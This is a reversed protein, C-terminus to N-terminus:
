KNELMQYNYSQVEVPGILGSPQLESDKNLYTATQFTFRENEPLTKEGILRNRWCNVVEVELTNNGKKLANTINLRYPATWVGGVYVGNVKVKALVMVKGLDLYIQGQPLKSVKFTNTYTATGSFFRIKPDSNKSWDSLTNFTVPTEPGGRGSQFAVTWPTEIKSVVTKAPYNEGVGTKQDTATRFVVFASEYPQLTMPVETTKTMTRYNPLLRIESTLPNWLEPIKGQIRYSGNFTITQDSQNSVFYYDGDAQTRHIFLLPLAPDEAAFDAVVGMDGFIQELSAEPYIRGKGYAISTAFPQDKTQWMEDAMAKVQADAQPYNQLSPSKCPAPGQLVLGAAVLEKLKALLEPRMTNIKPLVLVRYEMGSKLLLKGDKVSASMLVEGNVYDYSYGKPIEPNRIGTMKPADEGLFYAVDAVYRGEQLMYNCRKLYKAFIDMQSFWTNNRNFENGFNANIGPVRDDPQQIYLHLLTSNIGETFFRDGRQKMQGPYQTFDPGGCTFSEAWVKKKGYVHGCSSASRNEIDGLDGFSWFEGAIEDSQSGYQLFEGPYGWHGYNELWTTLGHENSVERLGGVYNYSVEDAILRRVDWLFRDSMEESGVVVGSYVPIFPVPDYGYAKKFDEIMKDTWNQGGTEYSDEVVIKFTKRDEAPIKKLIMGIYNDFHARIHEKSMKDTELGRGEEPAPGDMSGTPLMGTRMIVWKGKPVNWSLSGDAKMNSTIDMVKNAALTEIGTYEPQERWMYADWMPHPTQWMKAFTKEPYREVVPMDSLEVKQIIGAANVVVRFQKGETEPVSIVIPAYPEFGVNIADNSRDIQFKEVSRYNEGDKVFLEASGSCAKMVPYLVLSRVKAAVPSSLNITTAKSADELPTFVVKSSILPFALVKVDQADKGLAPLKVNMKTPGSVTDKAYALYRMSQSPKVWPGGSQSWGPCNFLGVEINLEGATKFMTHLIDWWADTFMKVPGQPAGQDNGIMGIQVRNIGVKKMAQLDKVVGEKSMNGGMWYWYVALKQEDPINRFNKELGSMQTQASATGGALLLSMLILGKFLRRM